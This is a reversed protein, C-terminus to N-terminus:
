YGNPVDKEFFKDLTFTEGVVKFLERVIGERSPANFFIYPPPGLSMLSTATPRYANSAVNTGLFHGVNEYGKRGIFHGWKSKSPDNTFELNYYFGNLYDAMSSNPDVYPANEFYGSGDSIYEDVLGFGHGMEHTAIGDWPVIRCFSVKTDLDPIHNYRQVGGVHWYFSSELSSIISVQNIKPNALKLYAIVASYHNSPVSPIGPENTTVNKHTFVSYVNFYEKYTRFPELSFFFNISDDVWTHFEGGEVESFGSSLYVINYTNPRDSKVIHRVFGDPVPNITVTCTAYKGNNSAAKIEASGTSVSTVVGKDSVTAVAPATSTWAIYKNTANEPLPTAVLTAQEGLILTLSTNDLSVSTVDIVKPPAPSDKGGCSIFTLSLALTATVLRFGKICAAKLKTM